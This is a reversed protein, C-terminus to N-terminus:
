CVRVRPTMIIKRVKPKVIGSKVHTLLVSFNCKEKEISFSHRRNSPAILASCICSRVQDCISKPQSNPSNRVLWGTLNQFGSPSLFVTFFLSAKPTPSPQLCSLTEESPLM